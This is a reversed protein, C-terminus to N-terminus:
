VIQWVSCGQGRGDVVKQAGPMGKVICSISQLSIDRKCISRIDYATFPRGNMKEVAIYVAQKNTAHKM